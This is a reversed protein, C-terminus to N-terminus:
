TLGGMAIIALVVLMGSAATYGAWVAYVRADLRYQAAGVYPHDRRWQAVGLILMAVVIHVLVYVYLTRTVAGYAHVHPAPAHLLLALIAGFATVWGSWHGLAWRNGAPVTPGTQAAWRTVAPVGAALLLALAALTPWWAVDIWEPPPWQPAVLWLFVYGFFLAALLAADALLCLSVGWDGPAGRRAHHTDLLQGFVDRQFVHSARLGGVIAWRLFLAIAAVAGVLAVGYWKFLLCVFFLGTVVAAFFPLLSPGPMRAICRPRGSLVDVMLNERVGSTHAALAGRRSVADSAWEPDHWLPDRDSVMPLSAFNYSPPPMRM